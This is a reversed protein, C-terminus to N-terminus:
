KISRLSYFVKRQLHYAIGIPIEGKGTVSLEGFQGAQYAFKNEDEPNLYVLKFTKLNRDESEITIQEITKALLADLASGDMLGVVPLRASVLPVFHIVPLAWLHPPDEQM